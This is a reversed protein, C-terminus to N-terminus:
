PCKKMFEETLRRFQLAQQQANAGTMDYVGWRAAAAQRVGDGETVWTDFVGGSMKLRTYQTLQTQILQEAYERAMMAMSGVFQTTKPIVSMLSALAQVDRNVENIAQQASPVGIASQADLKVPSVCYDSAFIVSRMLDSLEPHSDILIYDYDDLMPELCLRILALHDFLQRNNNVINNSPPLKQVTVTVTASGSSLFRGERARTYPRRHIYAKSRM